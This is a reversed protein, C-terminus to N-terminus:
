DRIPHGFTAAPNDYTSSVYAPTLISTLTGDRATARPRWQSSGPLNDCPGLAERFGTGRWHLVVDETLSKCRRHSSDRRM